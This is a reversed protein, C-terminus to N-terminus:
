DLNYKGYVIYERNIKTKTEIVELLNTFSNKEYLTKRIKERISNLTNTAAASM